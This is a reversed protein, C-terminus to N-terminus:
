ALSIKTGASVAANLLANRGGADAELALAIHERIRDLIDMYSQGQGVNVTATRRLGDVGDRVEVTLLWGTGAGDVAKATIKATYPQAGLPM